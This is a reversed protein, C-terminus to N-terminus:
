NNKENMLEIKKLLLRSKILEIHNEPLLANLKNYYVTSMKLNKKSISERFNDVLEQIKSNRVETEMADLLVQNVDLGYMQNVPFLEGDSLSYCLVDRFDSILLPSHTTYIFQCNPFTSNLRDIFSRQWKPHMHLEAEDIIVIGTGLLPNKLDPNLIALRRAIDGVMAMTLKEGQSLQELNLHEGNKDVALHIRPKREVRINKFEPLFTSLALRVSNLQNDSAENLKNLFNYDINDSNVITKFLSVKEENELDEKERFWEFFTRYDVIGKLSNDYGNLQGFNHKTRIRIPIDLVGRNADYYILIPFSSNNNETYETRYLDVLRNLGDLNTSLESKKGKKSKSILWQYEVGNDEVEIRINGFNSNNNIKLENIISGNGKESKVRAVFWSLTLSISELITTKGSGNNGILIIHNLIKGNENTFDINLNSFRGINGINVNKIKM